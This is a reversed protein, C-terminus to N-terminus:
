GSSWFRATKPIGVSTSLGCSLRTLHKTIQEIAKEKQEATMQDATM